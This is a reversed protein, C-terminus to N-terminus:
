VAVGIARITCFAFAIILLAVLFPEFTIITVALDSISSLFSKMLVVDFDKAVDAVDFDDAVDAVAQRFYVM